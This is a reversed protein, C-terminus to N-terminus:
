ASTSDNPLKIYVVCKQLVGCKGDSSEHGTKYQQDIKIKDNNCWTGGRTILLKSDKKCLNNRFNM